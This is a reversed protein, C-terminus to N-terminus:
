AREVRNNFYVYGALASLTQSSVGFDVKGARLTVSSEGITESAIGARHRQAITDGQLLENAEIFQARRLATRFHVPFANWAETTLELWEDRRIVVEDEQVLRNFSNKRAYRMPISILRGFAEILAAIRQQEPAVTWGSVNVQDRAMAEAMALSLFSNKLLEIRSAGQLIYATERMVAQEANILEVRVTRVTFIEGAALQNFEAPVTLITSGSAADFAIDGLDGLLADDQDYVHAIVELPTLPDGNLDTFPVNLQPTSNEPYVKM